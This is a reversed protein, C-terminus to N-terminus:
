QGVREKLRALTAMHGNLLQLGTAIREELSEVQKELEVPQAKYGTDNALYDMAAHFGVRRGERLLFSVQEPSFKERRDPMLCHKVWDKGADGTLEPRMLGGVKKYGGLALVLAKLADNFSEFFEGIELQM